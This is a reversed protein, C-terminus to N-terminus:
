PTPLPQKYIAQGESWYLAAATGVWLEDVRTQRQNRELLRIPPDSGAFGATLVQTKYSYGNSGEVAAPVVDLFYRDGVATLNSPTGSGLARVREFAGGSKPARSLLGGMTDAATRISELAYIADDHLAFSIATVGVASPAAGALPARMLSGSSAAYYYLDTADTALARVLESVFVTPLANAESGMTYVEKGAAWFPQSGAAAFFQPQAGDQVLEPVGGNLPVRFLQAHIPTGILPAGDLYVYAHTTSLKLSTPGALGSALVATTGDTISYSMLAGDHQYNGLADRTGYELWYVHSENATLAVVGSESAANPTPGFGFGAIGFGAGATGWNPTGGKGGPATTESGPAGGIGGSGSLAARRLVCLGNSPCDPAPVCKGQANCALGENCRDLTKVVAKAPTGDAETVLAGPVCDQGIEGPGPPAGGSGGWPAGAGPAGATPGNGAKAGPAGGLFGVDGEGADGGQPEGAAGARGAGAYGAGPISAAGGDGGNVSLKGNCGVAILAAWVLWKRM